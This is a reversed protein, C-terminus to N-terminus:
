SRATAGACAQAVLPATRLSPPARGIAIQAVRAAVDRLTFGAAPVDVLARAAHAWRRLTSWETGWAVSPSVSIRERVGAPTLAVIGWLAMAMAIAALSYHRRPAVGRPVVLVVAGCTGVVCRYRRCAVWARVPGRKLTRHALSRATGFDMVTCALVPGSRDAQRVADRASGQVRLRRDSVRRDLHRHPVRVERRFDRPISNPQEIGSRNGAFPAVDDFLQDLARSTFPLAHSDFGGLRQERLAEDTKFVSASVLEARTEVASRLLDGADPARPRPCRQPPQRESPVSTSPSALM